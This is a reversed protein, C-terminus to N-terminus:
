LTRAVVICSVQNAGAQKVTKALSNLTAGTTMVDDLLVVNLGDFKQSCEFANKMNKVRDKLSLSAQPPSPKIRKCASMNLELGSHRSIIRAIELAQNFGREQLRSKHLPMPIIVSHQSLNFRQIMLDAFTQAIHLAQGYKYRQLMLNIPYAYSFLASSYDFDPPSAICNGCIEGHVSPLACQPCSAQTWPLSNSCAECIALHGGDSAKCLM